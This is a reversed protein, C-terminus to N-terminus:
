QNIVINLWKLLRRRHTEEIEHHKLMDNLGHERELLSVMINLGYSKLLKERFNINILSIKSSNQLLLCSSFLHLM